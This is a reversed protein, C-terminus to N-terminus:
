KIKAPPAICRDELWYVHLMIGVWYIPLLLMGFGATFTAAVTCALIAFVAGLMYIVGMIKYGKYM